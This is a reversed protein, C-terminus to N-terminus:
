SNLHKWLQTTAFLDSDFCKQCKSGISWTPLTSPLVKTTKNMKRNKYRKNLTDIMFKLDTIVSPITKIYQKKKPDQLAVWLWTALSCYLKNASIKGCCTKMIKILEKVMDTNVTRTWIHWSTEHYRLLNILVRIAPERAEISPQSQNSSQLFHFMYDVIDGESTKVCLEKSLSTCTDLNWFVTALDRYSYENKKQKTLVNVVDKHRRGLTLGGKKPMRITERRCQVKKRVCYGRWQAQILTAAHLQKQMYRDSKLQPLKKRVLFGRFAAQIRLAALNLKKLTEMKKDQIIKLSSKLQPWRKRTLYSRVYAQLVITSYKLHKYQQKQAMMAKQARYRRQLTIASSKLLLYEREVLQMAVISRYRAQMNIVTQKLQLYRLRESTPPLCLRLFKKITNSASVLKKQNAELIYKTESWKKRVIYGRFQAQLKITIIRTHEYIQKQQRMAINARFKRQIVIVSYRLTQYEKAQKYGRFRSQIIIVARRLKIFELRDYTTPINKRLARKIVNSCNILIQRNAILNNRLFPWQKRLLYGRIVSQCKITVTKLQLYKKRQEKMKQMSRFKKQIITASKKLKLFEIRDDTPPLNKRLVRKIINSAIILHMREAQLKSCLEPWQKRVIYGRAVAQLKLVAIKIKLYIERQIVMARKARFRRQITLTIRMINQYYIQDKSLPLNKRLFHKITNIANIRKMKNFVLCNKIHFWNKRIMFGRYMKQILLAAEEPKMYKQQNRRMALKYRFKRQIFVTAKKLILFHKRKEILDDQIHLWKKRALYGRVCAQIKTAALHLKLNRKVRIRKLIILNLNNNRWWNQIKIAADNYRPTLYKYIIQWFLSLIKERHGNVIDRTSINGEIKIHESIRNLALDVNHIKQLKSIAPLRLKQSLSDGKFLIEVVKTMRTGDRLDNLSRVAYNVEDLHTQKHILNYDINRLRRIIDGHATVMDACFGMLFDYSSKYPSDIKFLCPNHRILQQEKAFDLFYILMLIKRLIFKKMAINYSPLNVQLVTTKTFKQKVFDNNFLHKRIFWGLGDLDNSDQKIYIVQGYIAELGIQLWLPNYCKLLDTIKKKLSLDLHIQRDDRVTILNKEISVTLKSLVSSVKNSTILNFTAKRLASWQQPSQRYIQAVFLDKQTAFQMPKNKNCMKSVEEWSGAAQKLDDSKEEEALKDTPMLLENLWRIMDSEQRDLWEAAYYKSLKLFPDEGNSHHVLEPNAVCKLYQDCKDLKPTRLRNSKPSRINHQKLKNKLLFTSKPSCKYYPSNKIAFSPRKTPKKSSSTSNTHNPPAHKIVWEQTKGFDLSKGDNPPTLYSELEKNYTKNPRSLDNKPSEKFIKNLNMSVRNPKREEPPTYEYIKGATSAEIPKFISTNYSISALDINTTNFSNSKGISSFPSLLNETSKLPTLCFDNFSSYNTVPKKLPEDLSDFSYNLNDNTKNFHNNLDYNPCKNDKQRLIQIPNSLMNDCDFLKTKLNSLNEKEEILYTERRAPTQINEPCISKSIKERNEM